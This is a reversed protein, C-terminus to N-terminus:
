SILSSQLKDKQPPPGHYTPLIKKKPPPPTKELLWMGSLCFPTCMKKKQNLLLAYEEYKYNQLCSEKFFRETTHNLHTVLGYKPQIQNIQLSVQAAKWQCKSDNIQLKACFNCNSITDLYATSKGYFLLHHFEVKQKWHQTSPPCTCHINCVVCKNWHFALGSNLSANSQVTVRFSCYRINYFRTKMQFMYNCTSPVKQKSYGINMKHASHLLKPNEHEKWAFFHFNQVTPLFIFDPPPSHLFFISM